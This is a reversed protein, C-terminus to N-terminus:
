SEDARKTAIANALTIWHITEDPRELFPAHGSGIIPVLVGNMRMALEAHDGLPVSRDLPGWLVMTFPPDQLPEPHYAALVRLHRLLIPQGGRAAFDRQRVSVLEDDNPDGVGLRAMKDMLGPPNSEVWELASESVIVGFGAAILVLAHVNIHRAVELAVMAGLSTGVLVRPQTLAEIQPILAAAMSAVDNEDGLPLVRAGLRQAVVDWTLGASGAGPLLVYNASGPETVSACWDRSNQVM